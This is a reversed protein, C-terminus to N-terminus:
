KKGSMGNLLAWADVSKNVSPRKEKAPAFFLMPQKTGRSWILRLTDGRKQANVAERSVAKATYVKEDGDAYDGKGFTGDPIFVNYKSIGAKAADAAMVLAALCEEAHVDAAFFKEADKPDWLAKLHMYNKKAHHLIGVYLNAM